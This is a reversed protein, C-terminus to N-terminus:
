AKKYIRSDRSRLNYRCKPKESKKEPATTMKIMAEKPINRRDQLLTDDIDRDSDEDFGQSRRRHIEWLEEGASSSRRKCPLFDHDEEMNHFRQLHVLYLEEGPTKHENRDM